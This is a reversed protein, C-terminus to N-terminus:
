GLKREGITKEEGGASGKRKGCRLIEPLRELWYTREKAQEEEEVEEEASAQKEEEEEEEEHEEIQAVSRFETLGPHVFTRSDSVFRQQGCKNEPRSCM